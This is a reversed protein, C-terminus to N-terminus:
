KREIATLRWSNKESDVFGTIFATSYIEGSKNFVFYMKLVDTEKSKALLNFDTTDGAIVTIFISTDKFNGKNVNLVKGRFCNAYGIAGTCKVNVELILEAPIRESFKIIKSSDVESQSYLIFPLLLISILYISIFKM